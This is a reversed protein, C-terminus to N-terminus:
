VSPLQHLTGSMNNSDLAASQLAGNLSRQLLPHTSNLSRLSFMPAVSSSPLLGLSGSAPGPSAEINDASSGTATPSPEGFSSGYAFSDLPKVLVTTCESKSEKGETNDDGNSSDPISEVPPGNSSSPPANRGGTLCSCVGKCMLLVPGRSSRAICYCCWLIFGLNLVIAIAGVAQQYVSGTSVDVTFLSLAIYATTFLCISAVLQMIHLKRSAYPKFLLQLGATVGFMYSVLLVSFYAGLNYRFVSLAVLVTTQAAWVGEWWCREDRFTRYLFGFHAKFAPDHLKKRNFRLLGVIALPVGVCLLMSVPLGLGLAWAGHWGQWCPQGLASVWYGQSANAVAFQPYPDAGNNADDIRYCAFFGLAARLLFPYAYILVVLCTVPLKSLLTAGLGGYSSIFPRNGLKAMMILRGLCWLLMHMLMVAAVVVFPAILYVLQKLVAPPIGDGQASGLVCDLSVVQNNSAAFVLSAIKYFFGLSSPWEAPMSGLIVLYQVFKVLITIYYAPAEAKAGERNGRWIIHVTYTVLLVSVFSTAFYVEWQTRKPLCKGCNFPGLSGYGEECVGCLHGTYGSSCTGNYECVDVVHPCRHIQTSYRGSHWYGSLPLLSDGGTCNANIPCIECSSRSPDFSYTSPICKQCYGHQLVEGVECQKRLWFVGRSQADIRSGALSMKVLPEANVDTGIVASNNVFDSNNTITVTTLSSAYIAGGTAAKNAHFLSEAVTLTSNGYVAVAGGNSGEGTNNFFYCRGMITVSSAINLSVGGGGYGNVVRNSLFRSGGTILVHCQDFTSLAGGGGDAYNHAFTTNGTIITVTDGNASLAGGTHIGQARNGELLTGDTLILSAEDTVTIGGGGWYGDALNDLIRTGSVKLVAKEKAFLATGGPGVNHAFTGGQVVLSSNEFALVCAFKKNETM